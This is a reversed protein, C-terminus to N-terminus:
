PGQTDENDFLWCLCCLLSQKLPCFAFNLLSLISFHDPKFARADAALSNRGYFKIGTGASSSKMSAAM